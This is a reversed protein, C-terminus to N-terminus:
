HVLLFKMMRLEENCRRSLSMCQQCKGESVHKAFQEINAKRFKPLAKLGRLESQVKVNIMKSTCDALIPVFGGSAGGQSKQGLCGSWDSCAKNGRM